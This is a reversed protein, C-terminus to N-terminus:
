KAAKGRVRAKSRAGVVCGALEMVARKVDIQLSGLAREPQRGHGVFLGSGEVMSVILAAKRRAHSASLEPDIDRLVRRLHDILENYVDKMTLRADVDHASIAWLHWFLAQDPQHQSALWLDVLMEFRERPDDLSEVKGLIATRFEGGRRSFVADILKARTPFHYQLNGVSIGIKQAVARVSLGESGQRKLIDEAADLITELTSNTRTVRGAM